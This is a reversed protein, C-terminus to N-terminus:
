AFDWRQIGVMGLFAEFHWQAGDLTLNCLMTVQVAGSSLPRTETATSLTWALKRNKRVQWVTTVWPEELVLPVKLDARQTWADVGEM